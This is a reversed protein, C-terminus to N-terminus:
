ARRAQWEPAYKQRRRWRRAHREQGRQWKRETRDGDLTGTPLFTVILRAARDFVLRTSTGYVRFKLVVRVGGRQSRNLPHRRADISDALWGVQACLMVYEALTLPLGYREALRDRAHRYAAYQSPPIWM